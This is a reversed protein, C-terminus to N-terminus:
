HPDRLSNQMSGQGSSVQSTKGMTAPSDLALEAQRTPLPTRAYRPRARTVDHQLLRCAAHPRLPLTFLRRWELDLPGPTPRSLKSSATEVTAFGPFPPPGCSVRLSRLSVLAVAPSTPPLTGRATTTESNTHRFESRDQAAACSGPHRFRHQLQLSADPTTADLGIAASCADDSRSRPCQTGRHHIDRRRSASAAGVARDDPASSTPLSPEAATWLLSLM